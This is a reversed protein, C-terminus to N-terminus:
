MGRTLDCRFAFHIASLVNAAARLLNMATEVDSLEMRFAGVVEDHADLEIYAKGPPDEPRFRSRIEAISSERFDGKLADGTGPYRFFTSQRDLDEIATIWDALETTISNLDTVSLGQLKSRHNNLVSEFHRYLDGVNHVRYIAVWKDAVNILPAGDPANPGFPLSLKRHLVIIISKLYLEVAHRYLYAIPLSSNFFQQQECSQELRVAADNFADGMVGFGDDFQHTLPKFQYYPPSPLTKM